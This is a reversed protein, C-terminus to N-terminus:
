NYINLILRQLHKHYTESLELFLIKNKGTKGKITCTSIKLPLKIELFKPSMNTSSIRNNSFKHMFIDYICYYYPHRFRVEEFIVKKM